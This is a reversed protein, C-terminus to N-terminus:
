RCSALLRYDAGLQSAWETVLRPVCSQSPAGRVLRWWRFSLHGRLKFLLSPNIRSEGYSVEYLAGYLLPSSRNGGSAAVTLTQRQATVFPLVTALLGRVLKAM